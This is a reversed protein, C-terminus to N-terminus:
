IIWLSQAVGEAFCVLAFLDVTLTRVTHVILWQKLEKENAKEIEEESRTIVDRGAEAMRKIPGAVLPVFALHGVAFVSGYLYWNSVSTTELTVHTRLWRACVLGSIASVLTTPVISAIAPVALADFFRSMPKGTITPRANLFALLMPYQFITMGVTASATCLPLILGLHGGRPRINGIGSM